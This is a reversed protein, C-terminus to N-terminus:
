RGARVRAAAAPLAALEDATMTRNNLRQQLAAGLEALPDGPAHELFRDLFEGATASLEHRISGIALQAMILASLATDLDAPGSGANCWDIVVPGDASILVNEPHLDLHVVAGGDPGPIAHLRALLDALMAAGEGIPMTGALMAEAMTPGDVRTMVMDPGYAEFVEPVPYGHGAVYRMIAAEGSVDTDRRYRRLVRQGNLAFVDADRGAAIPETV